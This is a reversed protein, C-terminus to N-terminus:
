AKTRMEVMMSNCVDTGVVAWINGFLAGDKLEYGLVENGSPDTLLVQLIGHLLIGIHPLDSHSYPIRAGKSFCQVYGGVQRVFLLADEKSVGSFIPLGRFDIEQEDVM